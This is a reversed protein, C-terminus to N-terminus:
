VSEAARLVLALATLTPNVSPNQPWASAGLIWLNRVQWHRMKTDVVSHAADAGMIAGGQIHTGQYRTADYRRLGAFPTIEVAGMARAIEVAKPTIWEVMRRENGTWDITLRMLPDGFKDKYTPDLDMYNGRYSFHDGYFSLRGTRDYWHTAAKKWDSGWTAKVSAPVVGFNAMPRFGYCVTYVIGGGLFGLESHDSVDGDFDAISVGASGAGMFRNLPKEFFAMAAPISIQHTLSRGVLGKGTAPDYPEGIKSLLLLRVNNLTWSALFVRAAPQFVEEGKADFYTVGRARGGEVVVRRAWCGSRLEFHRRRRLVPM